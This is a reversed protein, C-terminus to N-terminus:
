RLLLPPDGAVHALWPNSGPLRYGCTQSLWQVRLPVLTKRPRCLRWPSLLEGSNAQDQHTVPAIREYGSNSFVPAIRYSYRSILNRYPLESQRM